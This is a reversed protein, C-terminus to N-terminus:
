SREILAVKIGDSLKTYYESYGSIRVILDRYEEPNQYAAKLIESDTINIQVHFGGKEFYGKVLSKIVANGREGDAEKESMAFMLPNGNPYRDNAIHSASNLISTVTKGCVFDSAAIGYSVREGSLRGDPTAPYSESHIDGLFRFLGPNPIVGDYIKGNKVLDAIYVSLDHALENTEPNDTGFKGSLRKCKESLTRDPFNDLVACVFDSYGYEGKEFVIKKIVYISDVLTGIGLINMGFMTYEAGGHEAAIGSELCGGMCASEFPSVCRRRIYEWNARFVPIIEENYTDAFYKKFSLYFESFESYERKQEHNQKLFGILIDHLNFFGANATTGLTKGDPNAEYCGVIGYNEADARMVGINELGNIIVSDNFIAPMGTKCKVLAVIFDWLKESTNENTKVSISPQKVKLECSVELCLFTLENETNGGLTLNQSEDGECCKLWFCMLLEKAEERTIKGSEIDKKYFPYMYEDFCGFSLAAVNGGEAHLFLHVLWVLQLAEGFSQPAGKTLNSLNESAIRMSESGCRGYLEDAADCLRTVFRLFARVSIDFAKSHESDLESIKDLIGCIGLKLITRYDVIIHGKNYDRGRHWHWFRLSGCILENEDIVIPMKESFATLFRAKRILEDTETSKDYYEGAIASYESKENTEKNIVSKLYSIRDNM